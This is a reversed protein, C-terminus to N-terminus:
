DRGAWPPRGHPPRVEIVTGDARTITFADFDGDDMEGTVTLREGVEFSRREFREPGTDVLVAGTADALVFANGFVQTVEGEIRIGEVGELDGIPTRAHVAALTMVVGALVIAPLSTRM